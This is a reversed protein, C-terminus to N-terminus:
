FDFLDNFGEIITPHTFIQDRIYTYPIKNDMAMKILNIIEHSEEVFLHAGLILNTKKDVIVKLLGTTDKVVSAKIIQLSLISNTKVDYGKELAEKETLGVRSFTPSIFVSYPINNRLDLNYKGEDFLHSKVIRYDDLSIYTFQLGGVVDGIVYINDQTTQLHKNVKINGRENLEVGINTLNLGDINPRRGTSYLIAESELIQKDGNIEIEISVSENSPTIGKVVVDTLLNIGENQFHDKILSSIEKEERALFINSSELITVKTGYNKYMSAFECGIYGAGIIILSKPLSKLNQLQTSDYVFKSDIGEINPIVTKAGTNIFFKDAWLIEKRGDSFVVEIENKSIFSAKANIVDAGSSIVKDYNKQRLNNILDDKLIISNQYYERTKSSTLSDFVLRKTPICGINICTGGYMKNSQEILAVKQNHNKALDYALTKGGKGFGIIISDYKKM